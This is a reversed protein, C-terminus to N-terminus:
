DEKGDVLENIATLFATFLRHHKERCRNMGALSLTVTKEPV